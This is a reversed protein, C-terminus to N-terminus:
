DVGCGARLPDLFAEIDNFEELVVLEASEINESETLLGCM